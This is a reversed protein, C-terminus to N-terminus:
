ITMKFSIENKRVVWDTKESDIVEDFISGNPLFIFVNKKTKRESIRIKSYSLICRPM